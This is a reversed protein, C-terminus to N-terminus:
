IALYKKKDYNSKEEMSVNVYHSCANMFKDVDRIPYELRFKNNLFLVEIYNKLNKKVWIITKIEHYPVFIDGYIMNRLPPSPFIIGNSYVQAAPLNKLWLIFLIICIGVTILGVGLLLASSMIAMYGLIFVMLSFLLQPIFYIYSFRSIMSEDYLLTGKEDTM